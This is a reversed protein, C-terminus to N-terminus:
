VEDVHMLTRPKLCLSLCDVSLFFLFAQCLQDNCLNIVCVGACHIADNFATALFVQFRVFIM